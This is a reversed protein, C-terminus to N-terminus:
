KNPQAALDAATVVGAPAGMKAILAAESLGLVQRANGQLQHDPWVLATYGAALILLVAATVSITILWRRNADTMTRFSQNLPLCDSTLQYYCLFEAPACPKPPLDRPACRNGF